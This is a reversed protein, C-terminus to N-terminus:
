EIPIELISFYYDSKEYCKFLDFVADWFFSFFTKDM